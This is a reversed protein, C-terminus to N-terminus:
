LKWTEGTNDGKTEKNFKENSPVGNEQLFEGCVLSPLLAYFANSIGNNLFFQHTQIREM